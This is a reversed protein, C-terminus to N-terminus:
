LDGTLCQRLFLFVRVETYIAESDDSMSDDLTDDDSYNSCLNSWRLGSEDECHASHHLHFKPANGCSDLILRLPAACTKWGSVRDCGKGKVLKVLSSVRRISPQKHSFDPMERGVDIKKLNRGTGRTWSV